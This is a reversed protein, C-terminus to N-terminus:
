IVLYQLVTPVYNYHSESFGRRNFIPRLIVLHLEMYPVFYQFDTPVTNLFDTLCFLIPLSQRYTTTIVKSFVARIQNTLFVSKQVSGIYEYTLNPIPLRDDTLPQLSKPCRTYQEFTLFHKYVSLSLGPRYQIYHATYNM